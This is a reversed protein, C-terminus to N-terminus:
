FDTGSIAGVFWGLKRFGINWVVLLQFDFNYNGGVCLGSQRVGINGFQSNFNLVEVEM